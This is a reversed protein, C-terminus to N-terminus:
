GRTSRRIAGAEPDRERDARRQPRQRADGGHVLDLREVEADEHEDTQDRSRERPVVVRDPREDREHEDGVRPPPAPARADLDGAEHRRDGRRDRQQVDGDVCASPM